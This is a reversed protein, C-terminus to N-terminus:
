HPPYITTILSTIVIVGAVLGLEARMTWRLAQRAGADGALKPGLVQRNVLAVTVSDWM